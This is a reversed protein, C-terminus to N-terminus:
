YYTSFVAVTRRSHSDSVLVIDHVSAQWKYVRTPANERANTKGKSEGQKSHTQIVTRKVTPWGTNCRVQMYM